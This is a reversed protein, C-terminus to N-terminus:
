AGPHRHPQRGRGRTTAEHLGPILNPAQLDASCAVWLLASDLYQGGLVLNPGHETPVSPNPGPGLVHGRPM